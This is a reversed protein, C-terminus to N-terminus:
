MCIRSWLIPQWRKKNWYHGEVFQVMGIPRITDYYFSHYNIKNNFIVQFNELDEHEFM